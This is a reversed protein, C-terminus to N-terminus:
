LRRSKVLTLIFDAGVTVSGVVVTTWVRLVSGVPVYRTPLRM